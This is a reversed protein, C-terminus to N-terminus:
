CCRKHTLSCSDVHHGGFHTSRCAPRVQKPTRDATGSSARAASPHWCGGFHMLSKGWLAAVEHPRGPSRSEEPACCFVGACPTPRQDLQLVCSKAQVRCAATSTSRCSHQMLNIRPCRLPRAPAPGEVGAQALVAWAQLRAAGLFCAEPVLAAECRRARAQWGGRPVAAASSRVANGAHPGVQVALPYGLAAAHVADAVGPVVTCGVHVAAAAAAVEEHASKAAEQGPACDRDQAATCDYLPQWGAWWHPEKSEEGHPLGHLCSALGHDDGVSAMPCTARAAPGWVMCAFCGLLMMLSM